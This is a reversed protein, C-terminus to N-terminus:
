TMWDRSCVTMLVIPFHFAEGRWDNAEFLVSHSGRTGQAINALPRTSSDSIGTTIIANCKRDLHVVNRGYIRCGQYAQSMNANSVNGRSM